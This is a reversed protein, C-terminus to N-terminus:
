LAVGLQHPEEGPEDPLDEVVRLGLRALTAGLELQRPNAGEQGRELGAVVVGPLM